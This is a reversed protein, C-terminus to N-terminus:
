RNNGKLPRIMGTKCHCRSSAESECHYPVLCIELHKSRLSVGFDDHLCGFTMITNGYVFGFHYYSLSLCLLSIISKSLWIISISLHKDLFVLHMIWKGFDDNNVVIIYDTCWFWLIVGPNHWEHSHHIYSAAVAQPAVM